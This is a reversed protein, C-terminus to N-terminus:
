ATHIKAIMWSLIPGALKEVLPIRYLMPKFSDKHLFAGALAIAALVSSLVANWGAFSLGLIRLQAHTCSILETSQLQSLLNNANATIDVSNTCDNPGLWFEWEAGAQYVGVGGGYLIAALVVLFFLRVLTAPWKRWVALVLLAGLVVLAYHVERQVYCLRCPQFGGIHQLSLSCLVIFISGVWLLLASLAQSQGIPASLKM